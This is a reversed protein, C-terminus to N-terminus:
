GLEGKQKVTGESTVVRRESGRPWTPLARSEQWLRGNLGVEGESSATGEENGAKKECVVIGM